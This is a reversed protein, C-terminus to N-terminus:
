GFGMATSVHTIIRLTETRSLLQTGGAKGQSKQFMQCAPLPFYDREAYRCSNNASLLRFSVNIIVIFTSSIIWGEWISELYSHARTVGWSYLLMLFAVLIFYCYSTDPVNVYVCSIFPLWFIFLVAGRFIIFICIKLSYFIPYFEFNNRLTIELYLTPFTTHYVFINIPCADRSHSNFFLFIM